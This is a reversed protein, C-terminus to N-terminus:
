EYRIGKEKFPGFAQPLFVYPKQWRRFRLLENQLHYLRLTSPLQDSYSFGSADIIMDIDAELVIDFKLLRDRFSKPLIYTFRNFDVINKRLSLKRIAPIKLLQEPTAISSSRMAFRVKPWWERLQNVVAWLMLQSGRNKFEVGKIEVIM